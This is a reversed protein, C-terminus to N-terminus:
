AEIIPLEQYGVELLPQGIWRYPQKTDPHITPPLVLFRNDCLIEGIKAGGEGKAKLARYRGDGSLRVLYAIGKAGIRGCIPNRLLAKTVRVYEDRDIDVAALKTGDPFPSGLVLGIGYHNFHQLWSDLEGLKREPDPINWKKLPCAKTGPGVPRPWFGGKRYLPALDGFISKPDVM